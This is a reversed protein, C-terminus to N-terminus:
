ALQAAIARRASDLVLGQRTQRSDVRGGGVAVTGIKIIKLSKFIVGLSQYWPQLLGVVLEPPWVGQTDDEMEPTQAENKNIKKLIGLATM